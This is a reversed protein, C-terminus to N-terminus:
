DKEIFEKYYAEILEDPLENVKNELAEFKKLFLADLSSKYSEVDDALKDMYKLSQETDDIKLLEFYAKESELGLEAIKQNLHKYDLIEKWLDILVAKRKTEM